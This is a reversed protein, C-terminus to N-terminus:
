SLDFIGVKPQRQNIGNGMAKGSPPRLEYRLCHSRNVSVPAGAAVVLDDVGIVNRTSCRRKASEAAALGAWHSGDELSPFDM